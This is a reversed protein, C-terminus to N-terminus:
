MSELNRSIRLAPAGTMSSFRKKSGEFQRCDFLDIFGGYIVVGADRERINWDRSIAIHHIALRGNFLDHLAVLDGHVVVATDAVVRVIPRAFVTM